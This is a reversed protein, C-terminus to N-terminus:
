SNNSATASQSPKRIQSRIPRLGNRLTTQLLWFTSTTEKPQRILVVSTWLCLSSLDPAPFRSSLHLRFLKLLSENRVTLAPAAITESTMMSAWGSINQASSESIKDRSLHGGTPADHLAKLVERKISSPIVVQCQGGVQRLLVGRELKFEESRSLLRRQQKTLQEPANALKKEIYRILVALDPDNLQKSRLEASSKDSQFFIANIPLRSLTDANSNRSGPRHIIEFEYEQLKLIWRAIRPPPKKLKRLWALPRNDTRVTFKSGYLYCHFQETVAWVVALCEREMVTWKKENEALSRSAFAIPREIGDVGIQSLVAGLGVDSADTDVVLKASPDPYDLVADKAIINRIADFAQQAGSSWSFTKDALIQRLPADLSSLNPIFRRYYNVFGLFKQLDKTSNPPTMSDVAKIRSPDMKIGDRTLVHGLYPVSACCIHCKRGKIRLGAKAFATLVEELKRLHDPFTESWILVDDIYVLCDKWNMHALVREMLRQFTAPANTLGFPMATYQLLGFRSAFATKHKDDKAIPVHHYGMALDLTSFYKANRGISNIAENIRPLPYSDKVTLENLRRYDICFRVTGDKKRVLVPPSSFESNSPEVIGSDLLKRVEKDAESQLHIPFRRSPLKFPRAGDYLDIHHEVLSTRGPMEDDKAFVHSYSALLKQLQANQSHSLISEDIEVSSLDFNAIKPSSTTSSNISVSKNVSYPVLQCEVLEGIPSGREISISADSCNVVRIMYNSSAGFIGNAVALGTKESFKGLDGLCYTAPSPECGIAACRVHAVSRAPVVSDANCLLTPPEWTDLNKKEIKVSQNDILQILCTRYSISDVYRDIFDAGLIVKYQSDEIVKFEIPGVVREFSVKATSTGIIRSTSGNFAIAVEPRGDLEFLSGIQQQFFESNMSSASSGSDLLCLVPTNHINARVYFELLKDAYKSPNFHVSRSGSKAPSPSRSNTKRKNSNDYRNNRESNRDREQKRITNICDRSIHGFGHCAFCQPTQDDCHNDAARSWRDDDRQNRRDEYTRSDTPHWDPNRANSSRGRDRSDDRYRGYSTNCDRNYDREREDRARDRFRSPSRYYRDRETSQDRSRDDYRRYDFPQRSSQYTTSSTANVPVPREEKVQINQPFITSQQAQAATAGLTLAALATQLASLQNSINTSPIQNVPTTPLHLLPNYPQPIPNNLLSLQAAAMLQRATTQCQEFTLLPNEYLRTRYPEPLGSIFQSKIMDTRIQAQAAERLEPMAQDLKRELRYAYTEITEGPIYKSSQFEMTRATRTEQPYYLALLNTRLHDWTDRQDPQLRRYVVNAQGTLYPPLRQLRHQENWGNADACVVFRDLWEVLDGTSFSIPIAITNPNVQQVQPAQPQPQAFQQVLPGLDAIQQQIQALDAQGGAGAAAAALAQIAQALLNQANQAM